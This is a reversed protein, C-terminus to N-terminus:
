PEESHTVTIEISRDLLEHARKTADTLSLYGLLAEFGTAVRYDSMKAHKPLNIHGCNRGRKFIETEEDTLQDEIQRFAKAQSSANVIKQAMANLDKSGTIGGEVLRKRIYLEMVCDGVYALTIGDLMNPNIM